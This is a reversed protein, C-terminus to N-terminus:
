VIPAIILPPLTLYWYEITVLIENTLITEYEEFNRFVNFRERVEKIREHKSKLFSLKKMKTEILGLGSDESYYVRSLNHIYPLRVSSPHPRPGGL